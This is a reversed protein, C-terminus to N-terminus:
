RWLERPQLCSWLMTARLAPQTPNVTAKLFLQNDQKHLLVCGVKRSHLYQYAETIKFNRTSASHIGVSLVMYNCIDGYIM